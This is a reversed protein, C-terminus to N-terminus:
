IESKMVEIITNSAYLNQLKRMRIKKNIREEYNNIIEEILQGVKKVTVEKEELVNVIKKNELARANERQHDHKVYPSPVLIANIELAMIESISTAGARMIVVDMGSMLQLINNAYNIVEIRPDSDKKFYEYYNTGTIVTIDYKEILTNAIDKISKILTKSGLSGAFFLIRPHNSRMSKYYARAELSRPNGSQTVKRKLYFPMITKDFVTFIRRAKIGAFLNGDGLRANQEHLFLKKKFLSSAVLGVYSMIGGFALICDFNKITEKNELLAKKVEKYKFPHKLYYSSKKEIELFVCNKDKLDLLREEFCGKIGIFIGDHGHNLLYRYFAVAPYVHGGSGSALIMVKM